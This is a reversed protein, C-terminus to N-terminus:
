NVKAECTDSQNRIDCSYIILLVIQGPSFRKEKVKGSNQGEKEKPSLVM